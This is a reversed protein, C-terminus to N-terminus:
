FGIPKTLSGNATANVELVAKVTAKASIPDRNFLTQGVNFTVSTKSGDVTISNNHFTNPFDYRGGVVYEKVKVCGPLNSPPQWKVTMDRGGLPKKSGVIIETVTIPFNCTQVLAPTAAASTTSKTPLGFTLGVTILAIMTIAGAIFLMKRIMINRRRINTQNFSYSAQYISLINREQNVSDHAGRTNPVAM